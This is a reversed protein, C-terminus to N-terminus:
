VQAISRAAAAATALANAHADLAEQDDLFGNRRVVVAGHAVVLQFFGKKSQELLQRLPGTLLREVAAPDLEGPTTQLHWGRLGATKLDTRQAFGLPPVRWRRDIRLRPLRAQALGPVRTAALTCPVLFSTDQPAAEGGGLLDSLDTTLLDTPDLADVLEHVLDLPDLVSGLDPRRPGLDSSYKVGWWGGGQPPKGGAAGVKLREHLLAGAEGGPLAGAVVNFIQGERHALITEYGKPPRNDLFALGRAEAYARLDSGPRGRKADGMDRWSFSAYNFKASV